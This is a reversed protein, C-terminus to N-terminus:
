DKINRSKIKENMGELWKFQEKIQERREEILRYKEDIEQQVKLKRNREDEEKQLEAKRANELKAKKKSKNIVSFMIIFILIVSAALVIKIWDEM